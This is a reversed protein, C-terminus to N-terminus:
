LQNMLNLDAKLTDINELKYTFALDGAEQIYAATQYGLLTVRIDNKFLQRYSTVLTAGAKEYVGEMGNLHATCVVVYDVNTKKMQWFSQGSRVDVKIKNYLKFDYGVYKGRGGNKEYYQYPIDQSMFYALAGMDALTGKVARGYYYYKAEKDTFTAQSNFDYHKAGNLKQKFTNKFFEEQFLEKKLTLEM